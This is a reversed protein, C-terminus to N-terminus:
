KLLLAILFLVAMVFSIIGGMVVVGTLFSIFFESALTTAIYPTMFFDVQILPKPPDSNGLGSILASESGVKIIVIEGM